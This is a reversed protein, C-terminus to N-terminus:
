VPLPVALPDREPDVLLVPEVVIEPLAAPDGETIVRLLLALREGLTEDVEDPSVTLAVLMADADTASVAVVDWLEEGHEDPDTLGLPTALGEKGETLPEM